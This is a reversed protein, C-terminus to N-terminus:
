EEGVLDEISQDPHLLHTAVSMLGEYMQNTLWSDHNIDKPKGLTAYVLNPFRRRCWNAYRIMESAYDKPRHNYVVFYNGVKEAILLTPNRNNFGRELYVRIGDTKLCKWGTYYSPIGMAWRDAFEQYNKARKFETM